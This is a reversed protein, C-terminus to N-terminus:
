IKGNGYLTSCFFEETFKPVYRPEYRTERYYILSIQFRGVLPNHALKVNKHTSAFFSVILIVKENRSHCNPFKHPIIQLVVIHFHYFRSCISITYRLAFFEAINVSCLTSEVTRFSSAGIM